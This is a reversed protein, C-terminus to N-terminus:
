PEEGHGWELQRPGVTEENAESVPCLMIRLQQWGMLCMFLRARAQRLARASFLSYSTTSNSRGVEEKDAKLLHVKAQKDVHELGSRKGFGKYM